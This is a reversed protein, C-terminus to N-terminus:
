DLPMGHWSIKLDILWDIHRNTYCRFFLDESNSAALYILNLKKAFTDISLLSTRLEVLLRNWTAPGSAGFNRRGITTRTGPVVLTGSNASWLQWRGVVSSIPTCVDAPYSPALGHLCNTFWWLWGSVSVSGSQFGTFIVCFQTSTTSSGPELLSTRQQMRFMQLLSYSVTATILDAALPHMCWHKQQKWPWLHDSWECNVYSTCIHGAYLAFINNTAIIQQIQSWACNYAM